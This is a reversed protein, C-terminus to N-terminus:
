NQNTPLAAVSAHDRRWAAVIQPVCLVRLCGAGDDAKNRKDVYAM